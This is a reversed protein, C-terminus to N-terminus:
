PFFPHIHEEQDCVFHETLNQAATKPCHNQTIDSIVAISSVHKAVEAANHQKIGGIAMCNEPGLIDTIYNLKELGLPKAANTKSITDFIPGVGFYNAGCNGDRLAQFENEISLGIIANPGMIKRAQKYPMDSQGIHLPLGLDRAIEVHDNIVLPVNSPLLKLTQEALKRFEKQDQTKDRLQVSSVGGDVARQITELFTYHKCNNRGIVLCVGNTIQRLQRM